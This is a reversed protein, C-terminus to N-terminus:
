YKRPEVEAEDTIKEIKEIKSKKHENLLKHKASMFDLTKYNMDNNEEIKNKTPKLDVDNDKFVLEVEVFYKGVKVYYKKNIEYLM